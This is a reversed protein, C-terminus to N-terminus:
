TIDRQIPGSLLGVLSDTVAKDINKKYQNAHEMDDYTGSGIVVLNAEDIAVSTDRCGFEKADEVLREVVLAVQELQEKSAVPYRTKAIFSM